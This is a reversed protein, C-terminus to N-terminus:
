LFIVMKRLPVSTKNCFISLDLSYAKSASVQDSTSGSFYPGKRIRIGVPYLTYSITSEDTGWYIVKCFCIHRVRLTQNIFPTLWSHKCVLHNSQIGKLQKTPNWCNKDATNLKGQKSSDDLASLGASKEQWWGNPVPFLMKKMHEKHAEQPLQNAM